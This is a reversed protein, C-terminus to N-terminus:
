NILKTYEHFPNLVMCCCFNFAPGTVALRFGNSLFHRIGKENMNANFDGTVVVPSSGARARIVNLMNRAGTYRVEENCTRGNGSAVCWHTNFHWFSRGTSKDALQVWTVYRAGWKGTARLDESGSTGEVVRLRSPDMMVGQAGAFKSAEALGTEQRIRSPSDCEQLGLAEPRLKERINEIIKEGKWPNQGFANWWFINYSVVRLKFYGNRDSGAPASTTAGCPSKFYTRCAGEQRTPETGSFTRDKLFCGWEACFSISNCESNENCSRQCQALSTTSVEGIGRGESQALGNLEAYCGSTPPEVTSSVEGRECTCLIDSTDPIAEDCRKSEKVVCDEAVEEAAATCRHGFSACYRDCRGGYPGAKVLARCGGCTVGGDVDPWEAFPACSGAQRSCLPDDEGDCRSSNAVVGHQVHGKFQLLLSGQQRPQHCKGGEQCSATGSSHKSAEALALFAVFRFCQMVSLPNSPLEPRDCSSGATLIAEAM